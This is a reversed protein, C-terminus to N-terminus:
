SGEFEKFPNESYGDMGIQESRGQEKPLFDAFPLADSLFTKALKIYRQETRAKTCQSAYKKAAQLLQEESWGEKVRTAYKKFAAGKEEKRPYVEWFELFSNTYADKKKPKIIEKERIEGDGSTEGSNHDAIGKDGSESEDRIKKRSERKRRADSDRREKVKYWQEQWVEWDHISYGEESKDIWGTELLADVINEAGLNSGSGTRNIYDVIDDKDAHLLRGGKEANELGWLWLFVLIGTAEFKSCGLKKRLGRLKPGDISTHVSIWM